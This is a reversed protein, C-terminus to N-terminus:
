STGAADAPMLRDVADADPAFTRLRERQDDPLRRLTATLTAPSLRELASWLHPLERDTAQTLALALEQPGVVAVVTPLSRPRSALACVLTARDAPDPMAEVLPVLESGDLDGALSFGHRHKRLFAALTEGRDQLNDLSRLLTARDGRTRALYRVRTATPAIRFAHLQAFEPMQLWDDASPVSTSKERRAKEPRDNAADWREGQAAYEDARADPDVGDARALDRGVVAGHVGQALCAARVRAVLHPAQHDIIEEIDAAHLEAVVAALAPDDLRNLLAGRVKHGADQPWVTARMKPSLAAFVELQTALPLRAFIRRATARHERGLLLYAQNADLRPIVRPVALVLRQLRGEPVEIADQGVLLELADDVPLLALLQERKADPAAQLRRRREDFGAHVFQGEEGMAALVQGAFGGARHQVAAGAGGGGGGPAAGLLAEASEGRVVADAVADAHQEYADGAAGVGGQLHVGARQQVVHAAEHAATHLDPAGAFAVHNGTAYAQAGMAASAAAAPGGVHAEVGSVDHAGFSRQIVDAFPLPSAPGALGAAAVRQVDGPGSAAGRGRGRRQVPDADAPDGLLSDVFSVPPREDYADADGAVEGPGAAAAPGPGPAAGDISGDIAGDISADTSGPAIEGAGDEKRQVPPLSATLTRKGPATGTWTGGARDALAEDGRLQKMM